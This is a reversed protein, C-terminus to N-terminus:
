LSFWKVWCKASLLTCNSKRVIFHVSNLTLYFGSLKVGGSSIKDLRAIDAM